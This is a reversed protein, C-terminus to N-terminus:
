EGTVSWDTLVVFRTLEQVASARASEPLAELWNQVLDVALKIGDDVARPEDSTPAIGLADLVARLNGPRVNRGVEISTVTGPAVGAADALDNQTWDRSKRARRVQSGVATKQQENM